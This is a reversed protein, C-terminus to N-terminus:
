FYKKENLRSVINIFNLDKSQLLEGFVIITALPLTQIQNKKTEVM